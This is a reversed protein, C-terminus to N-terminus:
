VISSFVEEAFRGNVMPSACVPGDLRVNDARLELGVSRGGSFMTNPPTPLLRVTVRVGIAPREPNAVTLIVTLSPWNVAESLKTRVTVAGFRGGAIEASVSRAISSSVLVPEIGKARESASVGLESTSLTADEFGESTGVAFMVIPPVPVLRVRVMIGASLWDPVAVM